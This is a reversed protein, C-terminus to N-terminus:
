RLIEASQIRDGADLADVADLGEVVRGIAISSTDHGTRFRLAGNEALALTGRWARRQGEAPMKEAGKPTAQAFAAGTVEDFAADKMAGEGALALLRAVAKPEDREYLEVVVRGCTTGFAIRPLDKDRARADVEQMWLKGIEAVRERGPLDMAAAEEFHFDSLLLMRRLGAFLDSKRGAEYKWMAEESKWAEELRNARRLLNARTALAFFDLPDAEVCKGLGALLRDIKATSKKGDFADAAPTEEPPKGTLARLTELSLDLELARNRDEVPTPFGEGADPWTAVLQQWQAPAEGAPPAFIIPRTKGGPHSVDLRFVIPKLPSVELSELAVAVEASWANADTYVRARFLCSVPAVIPAEGRLGYSARRVFVPAMPYLSLPPITCAPHFSHASYNKGLADAVELNIREGAYPRSVRVGICLIRGHALLWAEGEDGGLRAAGKWEADNVEGDIKPLEGQPVDVALAARALALLALVAFNLRLDPV